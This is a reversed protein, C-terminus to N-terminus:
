VEKRKEVSKKQKHFKRTIADLRKELRLFLADADAMFNNFVQYEFPVTPKFDDDFKGLQCRRCQPSRVKSQHVSFFCQSPKIKGCTNCMKYRMVKSKPELLYKAKRM